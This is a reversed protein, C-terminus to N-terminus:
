KFTLQEKDYAMDVKIEEIPVWQVLFSIQSNFKWVPVSGATSNLYPVLAVGLKANWDGLHHVLDLSFSKLKFGSSRRKEIDDFRFSNFLDVFFNTEVGPPLEVPVTFFPLNQFYRYIQSNSSRASLTIDLFNAIGFGLGLSFDLSSYTYRQLDFSLGSSLNVSFSLRKGWLNEKRFSKAYNFSLQQPELEKDGVQIWGNPRAPDVSGNHNLLYPIAYAVKFAASFGGLNLTSNLTTYEQIEPDFVVYQQFSGLTGFRLTETVNIPRWKRKDNDYPEFISTSASTESIWVRAVANAALSSDEPPLVSTISFTQSKDMVNAALNVAISHTDLKEKTWEGFEWDWDPADDPNLVSADDFVTKALLGKVNYTINSNSWVPSNYFPRLSTRFEWSSNVNTQSYARKRASVIKADDTVGATTYEEANENLYNYDQWASTSSIRFSGSYIGGSTQSLSLGMSGSASIRSLASSIESWDVDESEKWNDPSTRFQLESAFSPSVQYDFVLRPGGIRALDFRQGLIPPTLTFADGQTKAVAAATEAGTEWPSIPLGPLMSDGPAQTVGGGATPSASAQAGSTYPTGSVSATISMITFKNPIYFMRGPNSIPAFTMPKTSNRTTFAMSSTISSISLSSIYPNLATVKPSLSGSLRWEYSSIYTDEAVQSEATAGERLMSLWDLEESRNLFDRNVYPDSYLPVGWSVSGYTGSFSGNMNFRYRLPFDFSFFRSDNWESSGDYNPFPTSGSGMAYINRTLGLGFSLDFAGFAGKRPLALETGLYFGLNAYADFLVSLRTDNADRYKKGTSRLFVGEREKEMDSSSGFIKTISNESTGSTKPRGLIYTTTQVFTGERTRYGLVPHFVIEDSPYYFFPLWLVPINGVKLVANLIGWDSGPLLWLKSANLSWLAEPNSGNTIEAHTLVTVEESNRSIVTGAFRYATNNGAISRESIGDMFISSWNDLNVTISEGKFTEITDGEEKVYEVGGTATMVNRTRNYLIEWAKVRHVAEGDKLSIVVDGRLRAYEEDVVDLTFYETTRASEITIIKAQASVTGGVAPLKFYSRLRNALDDKTGGESLGLSRCWSALEMLTSTKIDLELIEANPDKEEIPAAGAEAAVPAEAAPAAAGAPEEQALVPFAAFGMILFLFFLVRFLKM